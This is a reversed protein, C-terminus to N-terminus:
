RCVGAISAPTLGTYWVNAKGLVAGQGFKLLVTATVGLVSVHQHVRAMAMAALWPACREASLCGELCDPRISGIVKLQLQLNSFVMVNETNIRRKQAFVCCM